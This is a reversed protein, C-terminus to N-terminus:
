RKIFEAPINELNMRAILTQPSDRQPGLVRPVCGIDVKPEEILAPHLDHNSSSPDLHPVQEAPDRFHDALLHLFM